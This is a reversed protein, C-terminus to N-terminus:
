KKVVGIKKVKLDFNEKAVGPSERLSHGVVKCKIVLTIEDDVESGILDPAQKSNLCLSPYYTDDMVPRSIAKKNMKEGANHMKVGKLVNLIVDRKTTKAM